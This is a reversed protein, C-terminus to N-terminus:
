PSPKTYLIHFIEVSIFRDGSVPDLVKIMHTGDRDPAPGFSKSSGIATMMKNAQEIKVSIKKRFENEERFLERAFERDRAKKKEAAARLYAISISAAPRKQKDKSVAQRGSWNRRQQPQQRQMQQLKHEREAAAGFEGDDDDEDDDDEVVEEEEEDLGNNRSHSVLEPRASLVKRSSPKASTPRPPKAGATSWSSSGLM